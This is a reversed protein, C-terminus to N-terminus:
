RGWEPLVLRRDVTRWKDKGTLLSVKDDLTLSNLREAGQANFEFHM